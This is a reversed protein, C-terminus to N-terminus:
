TKQGVSALETFADEYEQIWKVLGGRYDRHFVTDIVNELRKIRVNRSGDTEYQQLLQCWSCLGDQKDRKEM